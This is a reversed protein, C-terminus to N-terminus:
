GLWRRLLDQVGALYRDWVQLGVWRLSVLLWLQLHRLGAIHLRTYGPRYELDWFVARVRWHKGSRTHNIIEYPLLLLIVGVVATLGWLWPHQMLIHLTSYERIM